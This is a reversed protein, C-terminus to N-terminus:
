YSDASIVEGGNLTGLARWTILNVSNKIFKVSGDALMANVGGPHYSRATAAAYTPAGDNEDQTILDFDRQRSTAPDLAMVKTNPPLAFTFGTYYVNGNAWRSHGPDKTTSSPCALAASGIILNGDPPAMTRNLTVSGFTANEPLGGVTNCRFQAQALKGESGVITNSTGDSFQQLTSVQNVGFVGGNRTALNANTSGTGYGGWVFWSGMNFAYNAGAFIEGKSNTTVVPTAESPCSFAALPLRCVTTNQPDSNAIMFNSINFVNGQEMFPAIRGYISWNTGRVAPGTGIGSHSNAPPFCGNTSEYNHLALGLQKLNNICQARRAAERASQVAPLLLSILVAIIAIVVLLEILTFGKRRNMHGEEDFTRTTKM